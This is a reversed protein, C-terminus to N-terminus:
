KVKRGSRDSGVHMGIYMAPDLDTEFFIIASASNDSPVKLSYDGDRSDFCFVRAFTMVCFRLPDCSPALHLFHNYFRSPLLLFELVCCCEFSIRRNVLILINLRIIRRVCSRITIALPIVLEFTRRLLIRIEVRVFGVFGSRWSRSPLAISPRSYRLLFELLDIRWSAVNLSLNILEFLDTEQEIVIENLKM